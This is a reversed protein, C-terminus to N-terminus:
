SDPVTVTPSHIEIVKLKFDRYIAEVNEAKVFTKITHELSKLPTIILPNLVLRTNGHLSNTNHRVIQTTEDNYINYSSEKEIIFDSPFIMGIELNKVMKTEANRVSVKVEQKQNAALEIQVDNGSLDKDDIVIYVEKLFNSAGNSIKEALQSVLEFMRKDADKKNQDVSKKIEILVGLLNWLSIIGYCFFVVALELSTAYFDSGRTLFSIMIALLSCSFPLFLRVIQKKPTLYSLKTKAVKRIKRLEKLNLEISKVDAADADGIKKLQDKINKESQSKENEYQTALIGSGEHFVSFLIAVIPAVFGLITLVLSAFLQIVQDM